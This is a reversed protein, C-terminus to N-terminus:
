IIQRYNDFIRTFGGRCAQLIQPYIQLTLRAIRDDVSLRSLGAGVMRHFQSCCHVASKEEANIQPLFLAIRNKWGHKDPTFFARYPKEM